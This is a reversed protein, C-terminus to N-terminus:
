SHKLYDFLAILVAQVAPILALVVAHQGILLDAFAPDKVGAVIGALASVALYKVIKALTKGWDM